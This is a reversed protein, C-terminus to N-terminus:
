TQDKSLKDGVLIDLKTNMKAHMENNSVHLTQVIDKVGDLAGRMTDAVYVHTNNNMEDRKKLSRLMIIFSSLVLFVALIIVGIDKYQALQTLTGSSM